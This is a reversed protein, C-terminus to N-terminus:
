TNTVAKSTTKKATTTVSVTTTHTTVTKDTTEPVTTIKADNNKSHAEAYLKEPTTDFEWKLKKLEERTGDSYRKYIHVGETSFKKETSFYYKKFGKDFSSEIKTEGEKLLATFTNGNLKAFNQASSGLYGYIGVTKAIANKGVEKLNIRFIMKKLSDCNEFCNDGIYELSEPMTVSAIENGSYAGNDAFASAAIVRVGEPIEVNKESGTYLYLIRDNLMAFDPGSEKLITKELETQSFPAAGVRVVTDSIEAKALKECDSFALSGIEKVGDPIVVSTIECSAFGSPAVASVERGDLVSPLTVDGKVGQQSYESSAISITGDDLEIYKYRPDDSSILYEEDAHMIGAGLLVATMVSAILAAATKKFRNM